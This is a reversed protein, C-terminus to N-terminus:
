DSIFKFNGNEDWGYVEEPTKKRKMMVATATAVAGGVLVAGELTMLFPLSFPLTPVAVALALWMKGKNSMKREQDMLPTGAEREKRRMEQHAKEAKAMAPSSFRAAEERQRKLEAMRAAHKAEETKQWAEEALRAEERKEEELHWFSVNPSSCAPCKASLGGRRGRSHWTHHCNQCENLKQELWEERLEQTTM